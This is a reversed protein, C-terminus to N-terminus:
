ENTDNKVGGELKAVRDVLARFDDVSVGGQPQEQKPQRFEFELFDSSGTNPNFRKLFIMGHALDPMVTGPGLFDVQAALAEERGTVPRCVYGPQQMQQMQQMPQMQQAPQQYNYQGQYPGGYIAM